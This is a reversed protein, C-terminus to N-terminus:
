PQLEWGLLLAMALVLFWGVTFMRRRNPVYNSTVHIWAHALRSLVFAWALVLAPVGVADVAWFAGALVYFLVPVEFQNRINNNIKMVSEPWADDHLPSRKLDVTGAAKAALKTKILAVYVGLTLLVQALVPVFILDRNM